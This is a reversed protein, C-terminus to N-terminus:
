KKAKSVNDKIANDALAQLEPLEPNERAIQILKALRVAKNQNEWVKAKTLEDVGPPLITPMQQDHFRKQRAPESDDIKTPEDPPTAPHMDAHRSAVPAVHKVPPDPHKLPPPHSHPDNPKAM